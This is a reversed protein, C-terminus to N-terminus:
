GEGYQKPHGVDNAHLWLNVIPEKEDSILHHNEGPEIVVIDGAQLPELRGEIELLGKGQLICFVECDPHTHKEEEAHVRFGPPHFSLGGAYLRKGPLIGELFHTSVVEKLDKWRYRQM